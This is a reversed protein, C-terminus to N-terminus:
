RWRILAEDDINLQRRLTVTEELWRQADQPYGATPRPVDLGVREAAARFWRNFREMLEERSLKALLSSVAVPGFSDGKVIFEWEVTRGEHCSRYRSVRPTEILREVAADSTVQSIGGAYFKRGGHRDAVVVVDGSGVTSLGDAILGFCTQGMVDAKNWGAHFRRNLTAAGLIGIRMAALRFPRDGGHQTAMTAEDPEADDFGSGGPETRDPRLWDPWAERGDVAALTWLDEIGGVAAFGHDRLLGGILRRIPDLSRGQKFVRKSDDISPSGNPAATPRRLADLSEVPVGPQLEWATAAVVLPGLRPGYGAEDTAIVYRPCRNRVTVDTAASVFGITPRATPTHERPFRGRVALKNASHCLGVVFQLLGVM